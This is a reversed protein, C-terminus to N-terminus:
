GLVVLGITVSTTNGSYTVVPAEGFSATPFRGWLVTAGAAITRTKPPVTQGDYSATYAVSATTTTGGGNTIALFEDGTNTWTNGDAANIAALTLVAGTRNVTMKGANISSAAM